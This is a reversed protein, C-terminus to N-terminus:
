RDLMYVMKLLAAVSWAQQPCGKGHTPSEGDFVESVSGIGADNYFHDKLVDINKELALKTKKIGYIKEHSVYYERLLFPWV